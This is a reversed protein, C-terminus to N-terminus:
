PLEITFASGRGVESAVSITGGHLEAAMRCFVLGLGTDYSQGMKKIAVQGYKEFIRSFYEPPIGEGTDKIWFSIGGAAASRAGLTITGGRPTHKIANVILNGLTRRMLMEDLSGEVADDPLDFALTLGRSEASGRYEDVKARIIEGVDHRERKIPMKGDEMRMVDLIQSILELLLHCAHDANQLYKMLLPDCVKAKAESLQIYGMAATLPNRLDHVIMGVLTERMRELEQLALLRAEAKRREKERERERLITRVASPLRKLSQKLLYDAAGERMCEVAVEETQSGTVLLLPVDLNQEKLFRIAALGSFQPMSYDALILDPAFSKLQNLFDEETWVRKSVFGIGANTLEREALEADAEIDELILIRLDNGM